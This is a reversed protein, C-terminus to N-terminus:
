EGPLLITAETGKGPASKIKLTGGCVRWLRERVNDIGVHLKGDDPMKAPDFGPGDDTIVVEFHDATQRTMISVTGRGGKNKRIGHRIANEVLPELTLAPIYFDTCTVDYRIQLADEFRMKEIKLYIRTHELEKEFRIPGKQDIFEMNARLYQSFDEIATAALAPDESCLAEITNLANYLFHPKIQSLSLQVRQGTEMAEEHEQVFQLHLWIYYFVCSIVIAQTLFSVPQEYFILNFDMITAGIIVSTVFIPIWSEKRTAPHFQRMTLIFLWVILIASIITCTHHLPGPKFNSGDFYFAAPSFFATMYVAANGGIMMWASRYRGDPKVIYLFVALIVPRVAYGWVSLALRLTTYGDQLSVRYELYNQLILSSVLLVIIVMVRKRERSLYADLWVTLLLVFLMVSLPIVTLQTMFTRIVPMDEMHVAGPETGVTTLTGENDIEAYKPATNGSVVGGNVTLHAKAENYVGGGRRLSTNGTVSGGMLIMTGYNGIGGGSAAATNGTVTGSEMILTGFNQIGGGHNQYGGTIRGEGGKSDKLTLVAGRQVHIVSSRSESEDGAEAMNRDLTHGNLDITLSKGTPIIIQNDGEEATLDETLLIVDGNEAQDISEQLAAWSEMVEPEAASAPVAALLWVVLVLVFALDSGKVIKNCLECNRLPTLGRNDNFYKM